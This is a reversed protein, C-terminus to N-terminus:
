VIIGGDVAFAIVQWRKAALKTVIFGSARPPNRGSLDSVEIINKGLLQAARRSKSEDSWAVVGRENEWVRFHRGSLVPQIARKKL